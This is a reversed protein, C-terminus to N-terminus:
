ILKPRIHTCAQHECTPGKRNIEAGGVDDVIGVRGGLTRVLVASVFAVVIDPGPDDPVANTDGVEACGVESFGWGVLGCVTVMAVVVPFPAAAADDEDDLAGNSPPTAAATMKTMM